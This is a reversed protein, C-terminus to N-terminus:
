IREALLLSASLISEMLSLDSSLQRAQDKLALSKQRSIGYCALENQIPKDQWVAPLATLYTQIFGLAMAYPLLSRQRDPDPFPPLRGIRRLYRALAQGEAYKERGRNTLRRLTLSYLLFVAAPLLLLWAMPLHMFVAAAIGLVAYASAALSAILRGRRSKRRDLLGQVVLERNLLSLYEAADPPLDRSNRVPPCLQAPAFYDFDPRGGTPQVAMAPPFRDSEMLPSSPDEEKDTRMFSSNELVLFQQHVLELLATV